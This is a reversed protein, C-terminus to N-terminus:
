QPPLPKNNIILEYLVIAASEAVNLSDVAKSVPIRLLTQCLDRAANSLGKAESGFWILKNETLLKKPEYDALDISDDQISTGICFYESEALKHSMAELSEFEVIKLHFIAGMSSRVVEPNFSEVCPAVTYITPIEFAACLRMISGLNGPNAIHELVVGAGDSLTNVSFKQRIVAGIGQIDKKTSLGEYLDPDIEFYKDKSVQSVVARKFDSDVLSPSYVLQEIDWNNEIAQAVFNVGDIFFTGSENRFKKDEVLKKIDKYRPNQRSTIIDM